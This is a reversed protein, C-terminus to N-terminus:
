PPPPPSLHRQFWRAALDSVAHMTEIKAVLRTTHPEITSRVKRLDDAARVFSVALFDVGETAMAVALRLDEETPTSLRLRESPLHVGPRGMVRGGTLVRARVADDISLVGLAIAGAVIPAIVWALGLRGRYPGLTGVKTTPKLGPPRFRFRRAM